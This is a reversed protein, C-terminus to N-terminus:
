PSLPAKDDGSKSVIIGIAGAALLAGGGIFAASGLGAVGGEAPLPPPLQTRQAAICVFQESRVITAMSNQGLGALCASGLRIQAEGNRTMLTQGPAIANGAQVPSFNGAVRMFVEGSARAVSAGPSAACVQGNVTQCSGPSQALAAGSILLISAFAVSFKLM